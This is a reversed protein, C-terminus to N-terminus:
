VLSNLLANTYRTVSAGVSIHLDACLRHRNSSHADTHHTKTRIIMNEVIEPNIASCNQFFSTTGYHLNHSIMKAHIGGVPVVYMWLVLLHM